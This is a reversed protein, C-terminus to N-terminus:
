PNLNFGEFNNDDLAGNTVPAENAIAVIPQDSTIIVACNVNNTSFPESSTFINDDSPTYFLYAGGAPISGTKTPDSVATFSAGTQCSFTASWTTAPSTGVNQVQLGTRAGFRDDKFQPISIKTTANSDSITSYTIGARPSGTTEQENVIAVFTGTASITASATCNEPLNTNSAGLHVFTKSTGDALGTETDTYTGGACAGATGKYTVTIDIDGGSTNQVQLGTFRGFRAHKIIPAYAKTDFDASTLGRTSNLVTAPNASTDHEMVVGALSQDGTVVLGGVRDNNVVGSPPFTSSDHVSFVAMQNTGITPLNVVHVAGTRMTFTAVVNTADASGANQVYFSTTKGFHDGKALPFYLTNAVDTGDTGQYLAAAKGGTVGFGSAPQNTVSVIAKIPQDSSVVASGEFGAPMSAFDFIPTFTYAAGAAVSKSESYQATSQSDYATIVVNATSDSVNQVQEGSWWGSGPVGSQASVVSVLLLMIIVLVSVMGFKKM